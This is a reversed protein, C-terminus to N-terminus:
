HRTRVARQRYRASRVLDEVDGELVRDVLVAELLAVAALDLLPQLWFAFYLLSLFQRHALLRGLLDLGALGVLALLLVVLVLRSESFFASGAPLGVFRM